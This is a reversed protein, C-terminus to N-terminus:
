NIEIRPNPSGPSVVVDGTQGGEVTWKRSLRSMDLSTHQSQQGQNPELIM